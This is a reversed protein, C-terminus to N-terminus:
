GLIALWHICLCLSLAEVPSSSGHHRNSLVRPHLGEMHVSSSFSHCPCLAQPMTKRSPPGHSITVLSGFGCPPQPVSHETPCLQSLTGPSTGVCEGSVSCVAPTFIFCLISHLMRFAFGEEERLAKGADEASLNLMCWFPSVNLTWDVIASCTHFPSNSASLYYLLLQLLHSYLSSSLSVLFNYPIQDVNLSWNKKEQKERSQLNDWLLDVRREENKPEKKM